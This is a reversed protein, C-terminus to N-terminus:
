GQLTSINGQINNINGQLNSDAQTRSTIESSLSSQLSNINNTLLGDANIRNNTEVTLNTNLSEVEAVLDNTLTYLQDRYLELIAVSVTLPLLIEQVSIGKLQLKEDVTLLDGQNLGTIFVSSTDLNLEDIQTISMNILKSFYFINEVM